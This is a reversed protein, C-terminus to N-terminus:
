LRFNCFSIAIQSSISAPTSSPASLKAELKRSGTGGHCELEEEEAPGWYWTKNHRARLRLSKHSQGPSLVDEPTQVHTEATVTSSPVMCTLRCMIM